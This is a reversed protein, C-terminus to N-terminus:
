RLSLVLHIELGNRGGKDAERLDPSKGLLWGM